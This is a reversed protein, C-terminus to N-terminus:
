KVMSKIINETIDHDEVSTKAVSPYSLHLLNEPIDSDASTVPRSCIKEYDYYMDAPIKAAEPKEEHVEGDTEGTQSEKMSLCM